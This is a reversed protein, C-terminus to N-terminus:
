NCGLKGPLHSAKQHGEAVGKKVDECAGVKDQLEWKLLGRFTFLRPDTPNLEIAKNYDVLAENLKKLRVKAYARKNYAWYYDPKLYIANTYYIIGGHYDGAKFKANGEEMYEEVPKVPSFGDYLFNTILKEADALGKNKAIYWNIGAGDVNGLYYESTGRYAYAEVFDPNKEIAINFQEVAEQYKKQAFLETGKQYAEQATQAFGVSVWLGLIATLMWKIRMM